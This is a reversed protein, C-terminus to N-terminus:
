LGAAIDPHTWGEPKVVNNADTGDYVVRQSEHVVIIEYDHGAAEAAEKDINVTIKSTEGGVPLISNYYYWGEDETWDSPNAIVIDKIFDGYVAVRVIVDTKGTNAIVVEKKDKDAKEEIVTQGNLHIVAGGEAKEYDTFYGYAVGTSLVLVALLVLIM